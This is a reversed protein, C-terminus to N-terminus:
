TYMCIDAVNIMRDNGQNIIMNLSSNQKLQWKTQKSISTQLKSDVAAVAPDLNITMKFGFM